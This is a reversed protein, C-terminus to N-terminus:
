TSRKKTPMPCSSNELQLMALVRGFGIFQGIQMSLELFQKEDFHKLM